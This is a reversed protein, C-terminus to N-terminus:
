SIIKNKYIPPRVEWVKKKLISSPEFFVYDAEPHERIITRGTRVFDKGVKKLEPGAILHGIRHNLGFTGLGGIQVRRGEQLESAIFRTLSTIICSIVDRNTKGHIGFHLKTDNTVFVCARARTRQKSTKPIRPLRM